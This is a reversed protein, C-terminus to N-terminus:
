VKFLSLKEKLQGSVNELKGSLSVLQDSVNQQESSLSAVEESTASSEEAVASVNGMAESLVTQSEKLRDISETVSQLTSTFSEMQERVSLFIEGTSKVSTVQEEFLPTVESLVSVTENMETMINDTIGAVLAISERTQDALGRIEGAVVMFGRGAEGARAAEITANLSLINTQQTIKKMVDLVKLVSLATEKLNDVKNVLAKTMEGTRGTQNMLIALQDAGKASSDSVIKAAADMERNAAIVSEMQLTLEATLDSGKEAETALSGAGKAIEETAAAIERAADATKRSAGGLDGATALVEQASQNTQSVLETIREMMTNFSASLQGIEDKSTFETRVTLDGQAGQGMLDKLRGLPRAIMRVMWIGLILAILAAAAAAIYTTTLIPEADKVLTGTPIIGALKWDAKTMPTFVALIDNGDADKTDLSNNDTKSNKIFEFKSPLGDEVTNSSVIVTGQPSVLQILSNEGLNVSKLSDELFDKKLEILVLYGTKDGMMKLKRAMVINTNKEVAISGPFWYFQSSVEEKSYVPTYNEASASVQKYWEQDRIDNTVIKSNGTTILPLKTNEPILSFSVINNDSTTQSTLKTNIANIAVFQEYYGDARGLSSLQEQVDPDFYFQLVMKEYQDLTIDLKEANQIITQQNAEAVNHKITSKAKNYSLLGLLLVVVVISSLFILFLKVGVSKVPNVRKIHKSSQNLLHKVGRVQTAPSVTQDGTSAEPSSDPINVKEKEPHEKRQFRKRERKPAGM